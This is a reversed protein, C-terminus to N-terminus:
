KVEFKYADVPKDDLWFTLEYKGRPDEAGIGWFFYSEGSTADINQNVIVTKDDVIKFEGPKCTLCPFNAAQKPVSLKIKLNVSKKSTKFKVDIGFDQDSHVVMLITKKRGQQKKNAPTVFFWKDTVTVKSDGVKGPAAPKTTRTPKAPPPTGSGGPMQANALSSFLILILGAPKSFLDTLKRLTM